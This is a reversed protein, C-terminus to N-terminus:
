DEVSKLKGDIEVSLGLETLFRAISEPGRSFDWYNGYFVSEDNGNRISLMEEKDNYSIKCDIKDKM